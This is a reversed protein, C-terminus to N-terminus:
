RNSRIKNYDEYAGKPGKVADGIIEGPHEKVDNVFEKTSQPVPENLNLKEVVNDILNKGGEKVGQVNNNGSKQDALNNRGDNSPNLRLNNDGVKYSEAEPTIRESAQAQFQYDYSFAQMVLFASGLLFVTLIKGLRISKVFSFVRNMLGEM